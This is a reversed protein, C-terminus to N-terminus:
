AWSPRRRATFAAIGELAEPSGVLAANLEAAVSDGDPPRPSLERVLRKCAALAVPGGLLLTDVLDAVTADLDGPAVARNVLGLQGAREAGFRRGLLFLEMADAYRLRPVCQVAATTPALGLRVEGFAFWADTSAVSLDCAAVLGIAGGSVAGGIRAVVPKPGGRILALVEVMVRDVELGAEPGGALDWGASFVPGSAGLVIVRIGDHDLCWRLEDRLSTALDLGLANDDAPSDLTVTAVRGDVERRCRATTGSM